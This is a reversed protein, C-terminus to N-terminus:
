KWFRLFRSNCLRMRLRRYLYGEETWVEVHCVKNRGMQPIMRPTLTTPLADSSPRAKKSISRSLNTSLPQLSTLKDETHFVSFSPHQEYVSSMVDIRTAEANEEEIPSRSRGFAGSLKSWMTLTEVPPPHVPLPNPFPTSSSTSFSTPFKLNM